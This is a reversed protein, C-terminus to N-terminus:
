LPTTVPYGACEVWDWPVSGIDCSLFVLKISANLGTESRMGCM